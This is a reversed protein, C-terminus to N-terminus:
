GVDAVGWMPAANLALNLVVVVAPNAGDGVGVHLRESPGGVEVSVRSREVAPAIAHAHNASRWLPGITSGTLPQSLHLSTPLLPPTTSIKFSERLSFFSM